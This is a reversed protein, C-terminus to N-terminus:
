LFVKCKCSLLCIAIIIKNLVDPTVKLPNLPKAAIYFLIVAVFVDTPKRLYFLLLLLLLFAHIRLLPFYSVLITIGCRDFHFIVKWGNSNGLKFKDEMIQKYNTIWGFETWLEAGHNHHYQSSQCSSKLKPAKTEACQASRRLLFLHNSRNFFSYM